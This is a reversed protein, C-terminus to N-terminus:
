VARALAICRSDDITRLRVARGPVPVAGILPM